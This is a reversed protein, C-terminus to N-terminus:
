FTFRAGLRILYLSPRTEVNEENPNTYGTYRYQACPQNPATNV